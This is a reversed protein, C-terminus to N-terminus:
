VDSHNKKRKKKIKLFCICIEKSKNGQFAHCINPSLAPVRSLLLPIKVTSFSSPHRFLKKQKQKTEGM